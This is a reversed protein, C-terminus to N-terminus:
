GGTFEAIAQEWQALAREVVGRPGSPLWHM